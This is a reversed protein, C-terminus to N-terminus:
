GQGGGRALPPWEGQGGGDQVHCSSWRRQRGAYHKAPSICNEFSKKGDKPSGRELKKLDERASNQGGRASNQFAEPCTNPHDRANKKNAEGLVTELPKRVHKKEISNSRGHDGQLDVLRERRRRRRARRRRARVRAGRAERAASFRAVSKARARAHGRGKGGWERMKEARVSRARLGGGRLACVARALQPPGRGGRRTGLGLSRLRLALGRKALEGRGGSGGPRRPSCRAGPLRVSRAASHGEADPVLGRAGRVARRRLHGRRVRVGGGLAVVFRSVSGFGEGGKRVARPALPGRGPSFAGPNLAIDGLSEFLCLGTRIYGKPM